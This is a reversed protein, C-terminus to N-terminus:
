SGATASQDFFGRDDASPGYISPVPIDNLRLYVSLQGRHHILHNLVFSRVVAVRPLTMMAKGNFMLSWPSFLSEDAAGAIAERAKAVNADFTELLQDHSKAMEMPPVPVGGPALDLSDQAVCNIAWTPINALHTALGGMAMSKPHPKWDFKEEPVRELVKRTTGMEYDFEPLLSKSIAM